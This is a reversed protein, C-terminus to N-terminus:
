EIGNKKWWKRKKMWERDNSGNYLQYKFKEDQSRYDHSRPDDDHIQSRISGAV